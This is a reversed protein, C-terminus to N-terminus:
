VVVYGETQVVVKEDYPLPEGSAAEAIGEVSVGTSTNSTFLVEMPFMDDEGAGIVFDFLGAPEAATLSGLVFEIGAELSHCEVDDSKLEVDCVLPITLTVNDLDAETKLEWEITANTSGASGELLWCVFVLPVLPDDEGGKGVGRWRVVGLLQDNSPFGKTPDRVEVVGNAFGAKDVQPHTKYTLASNAANVSIKAKALDPDNIRLQLDGKVELLVVVGDRQIQALVLENVTVLIGNNLVAPEPTAEVVPEPTPAAVPEAALLPVAAEAAPAAGRKKGGLQLGKGKPRLKALGGSPAQSYTEPAAAPAPQFSYNTPSPASFLPQLEARRAMERRQIEKARRKREEAAELEKNRAIIEQIKEEHSDMELFTRVQLLLLDEKYGLTVLEDFALLVSFANDLVERAEPRVVLVVTQAFLLLTDIDQIINLDHTTVLVVLLDEVLQYVYRYRESEVTTHQAGADALLGPLDTLLETVRDGSLGIFQRLVLAKGSRTCVSAALIAM